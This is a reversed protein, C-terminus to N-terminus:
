KKTWVFLVGKRIFKILFVAMVSFGEVFRRYYGVLRLFSWIKLVSRFSKWELIAKIKQSDVKIGEASVVYGLLIVERLWFECKSFKM